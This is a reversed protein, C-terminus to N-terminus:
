TLVPPRLEQSGLFTQDGNINLEASRELATLADPFLPDWGALGDLSSVWNGSLM